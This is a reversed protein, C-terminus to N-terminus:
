KDIVTGCNRCVRLSRGSEPSRQYGVRVTEECSPCVLLVNSADVPAEFEVIGSGLPRRGGTQQQRQHKKRLNVGQVVVRNEKPLVRLVEARKGRDDGSIVEVTDGKKLRM